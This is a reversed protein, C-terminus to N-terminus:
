SRKKLVLQLCPFLVRPKAETEPVTALLTEMAEEVPPPDGSGLMRSITARRWHYWNLIGSETSPTDTRREPVICLWAQLDARILGFGLGGSDKEFEEKMEATTLGPDDQVALYLKKPKLGARGELVLEVNRTAIANLAAM